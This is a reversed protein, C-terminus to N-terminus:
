ETMMVHVRALALLRAAQENAAGHETDGSINRWSNVRKDVFNYEGIYLNFWEPQVQSGKMENFRVMYDREDLVFQFSFYDKHNSSSCNSKVIVPVIM